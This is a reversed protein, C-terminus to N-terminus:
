FPSRLFGFGDQLIELVGDGFIMEGNASVVRLLQFILDQKRMRAVNEVGMGETLDVLEAVPRTKLETLNMASESAKIEEENLIELEIDEYNIDKNSRRRNNGGRSNKKRYNKKAGTKKSGGKGSSRSRSGSSSSTSGGLHNPKV